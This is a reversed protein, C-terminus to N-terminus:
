YHFLNDLSYVDWQTPFLLLALLLVLRPFVHKMDWVPQVVGFAIAVMILDLGLAYLAIYKFLGLILLLGGFLEVYSTYYAAFAVLPKAIHKREAPLEFADMVGRPKIKFVKDYGQLFFLTGLFIRAIFVAVALHYEEM